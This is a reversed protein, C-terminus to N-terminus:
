GRFSVWPAEGQAVMATLAGITAPQDVVVLVTGHKTQDQSPWCLKTENNPSAENLLRKGARCLAHAWHESKGVDLGVFLSIQDLEM